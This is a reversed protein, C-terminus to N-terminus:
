NFYTCSSQTPKIRGYAHDLCIFKQEFAAIPATQTVEVYNSDLVRIGEMQSLERVQTLLRSQTMFHVITKPCFSAAQSALVAFELQNMTPGKSQVIVKNFSPEDVAVDAPSAYAKNLGKQHPVFKYSKAYMATKLVFRITANYTLRKTDVSKDLIPAYYLFNRGTVFKKMQAIWVLEKVSHNITVVNTSQSSITNKQYKEFLIEKNDVANRTLIFREEDTLFIQRTVLHFSKFQLKKDWDLDRM